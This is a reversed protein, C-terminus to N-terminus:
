KYMVIILCSTGISPASSSGSRDWRLNRPHFIPSSLRTSHSSPNQPRCFPCIDDRSTSVLCRGSPTKVCWTVCRVETEESFIVRLYFLGAHSRSVLTLHKAVTVHVGLPTLQAFNRFMLTESPRAQALLVLCLMGLHSPVESGGGHSRRQSPSRMMSSTGAASHSASSVFFISSRLESLASM